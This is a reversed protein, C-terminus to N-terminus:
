LHARFDCTVYNGGEVDWLSFVHVNQSAHIVLKSIYESSVTKNASDGSSRWVDRFLICSYQM